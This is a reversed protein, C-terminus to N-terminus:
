NIKQLEIVQVLGKRLITVLRFGYEQFNNCIDQPTCFKGAIRHIYLIANITKRIILPLHVDAIYLSGGIKIIRSAEKAFGKKDAFHHYAMCSVIVDFTQNGFSTEECRALSINMEPCKKKAVDLMKEEIDIGYGNISYNDSIRKLLTGTGCGVDLVASEQELKVAKLLLKYFKALFKGEFGNDYKPARKEFSFDKKKGNM